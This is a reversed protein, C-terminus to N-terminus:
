AKDKLLLGKFDGIAKAIRLAEESPIQRIVKNNEKDVVKVVTAGTDKDVSFQLSSNYLTAANNLQNVSEQLQKPDTLQKKQADASSQQQQSQGAAAVAQSSDALVPQSQDGTPAQALEVLQQRQVPAATAPAAPSLISPIQM